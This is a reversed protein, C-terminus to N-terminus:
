KPFPPPIHPSESHVTMNSLRCHCPSNGLTWEGIILTTSIGICTSTLIVCIQSSDANFCGLGGGLMVVDMGDYDSLM